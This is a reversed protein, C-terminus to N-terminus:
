RRVEDRQNQLAGSSRPEPRDWAGGPRHRDPVGCGHRIKHHRGARRMIQNVQLGAIITQSVAGSPSTDVDTSSSRPTTSSGTLGQASRAPQATRVRVGLKREGRRRHGDLSNHFASSRGQHVRSRAGGASQHDAPTASTTPPRLLPAPATATAENSMCTNWRVTWQREAIIHGWAPCSIGARLSSGTM